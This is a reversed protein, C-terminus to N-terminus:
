PGLSSFVLAVLGLFVLVTVLGLVWEYGDREGEHTGEGLLEALTQGEGPRGPPPMRDPDLRPDLPGVYPPLPDPAARPLDHSLGNEFRDPDKSLDLPVGRGTDPAARPPEHTFGNEFRDPDKSLDLPVGRGTGPARGPDLVYGTPEGPLRGGLPPLTSPDYPPLGDLASPDKPVEVSGSSPPREGRGPPSGPDTM